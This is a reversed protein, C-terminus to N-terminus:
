PQQQPLSFIMRCTVAEPVFDLVELARTGLKRGDLLTALEESTGKFHLGMVLIGGERNWGEKKSSAVKELTQINSALVKYDGFNKIGTVTLRIPAGNNLFDQFSGSIADILYEDVAKKASEKLAKSAGVVPSIHASVSNKVVSGLVSGTQTQIVQLEIGAHISQLGTGPYAEGANRAVAKGVIVYRAGYELGLNRAVTSNGSLAQGKQELSEGQGPPARDVLDFGKSGLMRSIETRAIDMDPKGHGPLGGRDSGHNKPREMSDLLIKLAVLDDKIKDLSVEANIRVRYLDRLKTEEIVDFRIIYGETHSFVKEKKLRFNEIETESLVFVGVAKEVALRQAQRIADQRSISSEGNVEVFKERAHGAPVFFITLLLVIISSITRRMM